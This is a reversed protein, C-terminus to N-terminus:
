AAGLGDRWGEVEGSFLLDHMTLRRSVVNQSASIDDRPVDHILRFLASREIDLIRQSM